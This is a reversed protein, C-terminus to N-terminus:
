CERFGFFRSFKHVKIKQWQSERERGKQRSSERVRTNRGSLFKKKEREGTGLPKVHKCLPCM